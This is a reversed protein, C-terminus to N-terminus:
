LPPYKTHHHVVKGSTDIFLHELYVTKKTPRDMDRLRLIISFGDHKPPDQNKAGLRRNSGKHTRHEAAM